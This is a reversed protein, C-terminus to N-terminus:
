SLFSTLQTVMAAPQEVPPLHAAHNILAFRAGPILNALELGLQPPTAPDHEGTLVLTPLRLRGVAGRLDADRLAAAVALYGAVPTRVLVTRLGRALAPEREIFGPAFWRALAIDAIGELGAQRVKQMRENWSEVSGVRAGTSCLVLRSFRAPVALAAGQAILGGVSIGVLMARVVGLADLLAILDRVQDDLTSEAGAVESCGHGRLDYRVVRHRPAFAAAVTDWLHLDCGLSHIFVIAEGERAGEDTCRLTVGNGTVFRTITIGSSIM